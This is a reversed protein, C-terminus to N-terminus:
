VCFPYVGASSALIGARPCSASAVRAPRHQVVALVCDCVVKGVSTKGKTDNGETFMAEAASWSFIREVKHLGDNWRM